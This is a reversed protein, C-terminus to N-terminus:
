PRSISIPYDKCEKEARCIHVEDCYGVHILLAFPSSNYGVVLLMFRGNNLTLAHPAMGGDVTAELICPSIPSAYM